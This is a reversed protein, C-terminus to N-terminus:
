KLGGAHPVVGAASSYKEESPPAGMRKSLAPVRRAVGEHALLGVEDTGVAAIVREEAKRQRAGADRAANSFVVM